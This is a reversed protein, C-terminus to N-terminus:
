GRRRWWALGMLGSALLLASAPEPVAARPEGYIFDDMVVGDTGSVYNGNSLLKAAGATIRVKALVPSDFAVGLFSLTGSTGSAIVFHSELLNGHRDFFEMKSTDAFEVDNFVAGFGDTVAPTVQDAPTFFSVETILSNVSTFLKQESFPVFDVPFGFRIPNPDGANTSVLFSGGPETSFVVGRARGPNSGNFFTGPFAAPDSVALPVADWNIERRGDANNVATNPNLAGLAARFSDVTGQIAAGNAGNVTFVTSGAEASVATLLGAAVFALGAFGKLGGRTHM